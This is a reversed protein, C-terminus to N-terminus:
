KKQILYVLELLESDILELEKILQRKHDSRKAIKMSIEQKTLENFPTLGPM